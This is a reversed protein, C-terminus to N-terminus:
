MNKEISKIKQLAETGDNLYRILDDLEYGYEDRYSEPFKTMAQIKQNPLPSDGRLYQSSINKWDEYTAPDAPMGDQFIGPDLDSLLSVLSTNEKQTCYEELFKFMLLYTKDMKIKGM